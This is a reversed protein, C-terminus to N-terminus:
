LRPFLKGTRGAYNSYAEGFVALMMQEEKRVLTSWIPYVLVPWLLVVWSNFLIAVGPAFLFIGGAYMPHRVYHYPGTCCLRDGMWWHRITRIAWVHWCIWIGILILGVIRLPAPNDLIRLFGIARDLAWLLGLLIAAIASGLPGVGFMKQFKSIQM